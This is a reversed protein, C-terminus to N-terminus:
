FVHNLFDPFIVSGLIVLCFHVFVEVGGFKSKEGNRHGFFHVTNGCPPWLFDLPADLNPHHPPVKLIPYTTIPDGWKNRGNLPWSHFPDWLGLSPSKSVMVMTVGLIFQHVGSKRVMFVIEDYRMM